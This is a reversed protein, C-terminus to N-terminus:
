IKFNIEPIELFIINEEKIYRDKTLGEIVQQTKLSMETKHKTDLAEWIHKIIGAKCLVSPSFCRQNKKNETKHEDWPFEYWGFWFLFGIMGLLFSGLVFAVDM